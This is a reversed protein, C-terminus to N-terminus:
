HFGVYSLLEDVILNPATSAAASAAAIADSVKSRFSSGVADSSQRSNESAMLLCEAVYDSNSRSGRADVNKRSGAVAAATVQRRDNVPLRFKDCADCVLLEGRTFRVTKDNRNYPCPGEPRGECVSM